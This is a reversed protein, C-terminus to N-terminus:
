RSHAVAGSAFNRVAVAFVWDPWWGAAGPTQLGLASAEHDLEELGVCVCM